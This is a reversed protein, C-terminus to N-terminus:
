ASLTRSPPSFTGSVRGSAYLLPDTLRVEAVVVLFFCFSDACLHVVSSCCAYNRNVGDMM